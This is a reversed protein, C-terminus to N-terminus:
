DEAGELMIEELCLTGCNMLMNTFSAKDTNEYNNKIKDVINEPYFKSLNYNNNKFKMNLIMFDDEEDETLEYEYMKKKALGGAYASVPCIIPKKFGINLLQEKLKEISEDISDDSVRFKDLKNLVFIIKSHEVNECIFKLYKFDDDTGSQTANVIYLIKNYAENLIIEETIKTHDMNLSSNVGPTDIICVKSEKRQNFLNFYTSMFIKSDKNDDNNNLLEKEDADLTLKGDIKYNFNDEFAKDYIYNVKSTFADNMTRNIRKGVITNILTSKGASMNATILVKIQKKSLHEKNSKWCKILYKINDLRNIFEREKYLIEFLLDFNVHYRKKYISKIDDLIVGAKKMDLFANMFLCDYIFAYRYTFLKFGRLKRGIAGKFLKKLEEDSYKYKDISDGLFINKYNKLVELAFENEISYKNVFYELINLYKIRYSIDEVIVPHEKLAHSISFLEFDFNM